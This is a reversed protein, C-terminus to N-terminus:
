AESRLSSSLGRILRAVEGTTDIVTEISAGQTMGLRGALLLQTELEQLSGLAIALYHRFEKTGRAQGEAINSPVSVASERVQRTLGYVEERPFSSSLHYVECALDMARQWAILDRYTRVTAV